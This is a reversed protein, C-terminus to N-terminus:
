RSREGLLRLPVSVYRERSLVRREKSGGGRTSHQRRMMRLCSTASAVRRTPSRSPVSSPALCVLTSELVATPDLSTYLSGTSDLSLHRLRPPPLLTLSIQLPRGAFCCGVYRTRELIKELACSTSSTPGCFRTPSSTGAARPACTLSAPTGSTPSPRTLPLSHNPSSTPAPPLNWLKQKLRKSSRATVFRLPQTLASASCDCCGSVRGLGAPAPKNGGESSLYETRRLWSVDVKKRDGMM